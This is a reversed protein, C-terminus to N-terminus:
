DPDADPRIPAPGLRDVVDDREDPTILRCTIPGVLDLVVDDGGLRMRCTPRPAPPPPPLLHETFKGYLGLHVHVIREGEFLYFLHKGWAETADLVAGDNMMGVVREVLSELATAVTDLVTAAEAPASESLAAFREAVEAPCAVVVRHGAESLGRALM